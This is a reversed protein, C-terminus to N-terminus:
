LSALVDALHEEHMLNLKRRIAFRHSEITRESLCLLQAIESTHLNLRLLKCLRTEAHSLEPYHKQLKASFEPNAITFQSEFKTWDILKDPIAALKEMIKHLAKSPERHGRVIDSLEDRLRALLETQAAYNSATLALERELHMRQLEHMKLQREREREELVLQYASVGDLRNKSWTYLSKELLNRYTIVGEKKGTAASVAIMGTALVGQHHFPYEIMPIAIEFHEGAAVYKGMRMEIDGLTVAAIAIIRGHGSSTGIQFASEAYKRCVNLDSNINLHCACLNSRAQSRMSLDSTQVLIELALELLGIGVLASTQFSEACRSRYSEFGGLNFYAEAVWHHGGLEQALTFANSLHPEASDFLQVEYLATGLASHIRMRWVPDTVEALIRMGTSILKEYEVLVRQAALTTATAYLRLRDPSSSSDTIRNCIEVVQEYRDNALLWNLEVFDIWPASEESSGGVALAQEVLATAEERKGASAYLHVLQAYIELRSIPDGASLRDLETISSIAFDYDWRALVECLLAYYPTGETM